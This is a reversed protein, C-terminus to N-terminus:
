LENQKSSAAFILSTVRFLPISFLRNRNIWFHLWFNSQNTAYARAAPL